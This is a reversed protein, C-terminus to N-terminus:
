CAAIPLYNNLVRFLSALICLITCLLGNVVQNGVQLTLTFMPLQFDDMFSFLGIFSLQVTFASLSAPFIIQEFFPLIANNIISNKRLFGLEQVLTFLMSIVICVCIFCPVGFVLIMQWFSFSLILSPFKIGSFLDFGNINLDTANRITEIVKAVNTRIGLNFDFLDKISGIGRPLPLSLDNITTQIMSGVIDCVTNDNLDDISGFERELADTAGFTVRVNELAESPTVSIDLMRCNDKNTYCSYTMFYIPLTIIFAAFWGSFGHEYRGGSESDQSINRPVEELEIIDHEGQKKHKDQKDHKHKCINNKGLSCCQGFTSFLAAIIFLASSCTSMVYGWQILTMGEQTTMEIAAVKAFPTIILESLIDPFVFSLYTFGANVLGIITFFSIFTSKTSVDASRRRFVGLGFAVITLLISPALFYYFQYNNKVVLKNGGLLKKFQDYLDKIKGKKERVQSAVRKFVKGMKKVGQTVRLAMQTGKAISPGIIPTFSVAFAAVLGAIFAACVGQECDKDYDLTYENPIFQESNELCTQMNNCVPPEADNQSDTMGNRVEGISTSLLIGNKSGSLEQISKCDITKNMSWENGKNKFCLKKFTTNDSKNYLQKILNGQPYDGGNSQVQKAILAEWTKGGNMPKVISMCPNLNAAIIIFSNSVDEIKERITLFDQNIRRLNDLGTFEVNITEFSQSLTTLVGGLIGSLVALIYVIRYWSSPNLSIHSFVFYVPKWFQKLFAKLLVKRNNTNTGNTHRGFTIFMIWYISPITLFAASVGVSIQRFFDVDTDYKGDYSKQILQIFRKLHICTSCVLYIYIVSQNTKTPKYPRYWWHKCIGYLIFLALLMNPTSNMVLIGVSQVSQIISLTTDGEYSTERFDMYLFLIHTPIVWIPLLPLIFYFICVCIRNCINTINSWKTIESETSSPHQICYKGILPLNPVNQCFIILFGHLLSLVGTAFIICRAWDVFIITITANGNGVTFDYNINDDYSNSAILYLCGFGFWKIHFGICKLLEANNENKSPEGLFTKTKVVLTCLIVNSALYEVIGVVSYCVCDFVDLASNWSQDVWVKYLVWCAVATQISICILLLARIAPDLLM